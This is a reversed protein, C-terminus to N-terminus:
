EIAHVSLATQVLNRQSAQSFNLSRVDKIKQDYGQEAHQRPPQPSPIDTLFTLFRGHRHRQIQFMMDELIRGAHHFLSVDEQWGWRRDDEWRWIRPKMIQTGCTEVRKWINGGKRVESSGRGSVIESSIAPHVHGVVAFAVVDGDWTAEPFQPFVKRISNPKDIHILINAPAFKSQYPLMSPLCVQQCLLNTHAFIAKLMNFLLLFVTFCTSMAHNTPRIFAYTSVMSLPFPTSVCVFCFCLFVCCSIYLNPVESTPRPLPHIMLASSGVFYNNALNALRLELRRFRLSKSLKFIDWSSLPEETAAAPSSM